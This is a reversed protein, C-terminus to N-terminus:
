TGYWLTPADRFGSDVGALIQPTDLNYCFLLTASTSDTVYVTTITNTNTLSTPQWLLDSGGLKAVGDADVFANSWAAITQAAYGGYSAETGSLDTLVTANSLSGTYTSLHAKASVLIGGMAKLTNLLLRNCHNTTLLDLGIGTQATVQGWPVMPVILLGQDLTTLPQPPTLIGAALLGTGASDILYADYITETVLINALVFQCLSGPLRVQGNNLQQSLGWTVAAPAYTNFDAVNATFDALVSNVTPVVLNKTLGLTAADLVASMAANDDLAARRFAYNTISAGM